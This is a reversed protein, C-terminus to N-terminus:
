APKTSSMFPLWDPAHLSCRLCIYFVNLSCPRPPVREQRNKPHMKSFSRYREYSGYDSSRGPPDYLPSSYANNRPISALEYSDVQYLQHHAGSEQKNLAKLANALPCGPACLALGHPLNGAKQDM